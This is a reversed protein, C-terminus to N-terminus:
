EVVKIISGAEPEGTPYAGNLLRIQDEAHSQLPSDESIAAYGAVGDARLLGIVPVRALRYDDRTMRDFSFITKIFDADASINHRDNRGAGAFIYGIKRRGDMILAYRVPRKGYLSETFDSIALYSRLGDITINRTDRTNKAGMKQRLITKPVPNDGIRISSFYLTADGNESTAIVRNKFNRVVWGDPFAVKIGLTRDYFRNDRIVRNASSDGYALGRIQRLYVESKVIADSRVQLKDASRVVEQLRTDHDPHSAFIGHYVQAERGEQKAQELEFLELQKMVGLTKLLSEPQYGAKAIYEAGLEDAELEAKRGFGSLLAGGVYDTLVGGTQFPTALGVVTSLVRLISSKGHQQVAHRATVHAIEHGIIAALEAESGLYAMIGRTIYIYGGPTAFANVTDDDLVTFHYTLEPRHSVAALKQGIRNVYGQLNQDRYVGYQRIIQPHMEAGIQLEKEESMLVFDTGGTPNSACSTLLLGVLALCLMPRLTYACGIGAYNEPM